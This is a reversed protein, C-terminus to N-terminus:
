VIMLVCCCKEVQFFKLSCTKDSVWLNLCIPFSPSKAWDPFEEPSNLFNEQISYFGSGRDQFIIRTGLKIGWGRGGRHEKFHSFLSLTFSVKQFLDSDQQFDLLISVLEWSWEKVAQVEFLEIFFLNYNKYSFPVFLFPFDIKNSILSM